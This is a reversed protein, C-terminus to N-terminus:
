ITLPGIFDSQISITLTAQNADTLQPSIQLAEMKGNWFYQSNGVTGLGGALSTYATPVANLLAFRFVKTAGDGVLVGHKNAVNEWHDPIYNITVEFAPADAQGQVQRSIKSGYVPVNVINPPTGMQPFERVDVIRRYQTAITPMNTGNAIEAAFFSQANAATVTTPSLNYALDSYIGAGISTIHAM